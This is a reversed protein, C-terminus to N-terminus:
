TQAMLEAATMASTKIACVYNEGIRRFNERALERIEPPSKENGFCLALNQLTVRRYRASLHFALSGLARGLRAAFPLPLAQIAAVFASAFAYILADM